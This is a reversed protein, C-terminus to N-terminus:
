FFYGSAGAGLVKIRDFKTEPDDKNCISKLEEYIQEDTLSANYIEKKRLMPSEEALGAKSLDQVPASLDENIGDFTPEEVIVAPM